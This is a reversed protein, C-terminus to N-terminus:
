YQNGDYSNGESIIGFIGDLTERLGTSKCITTQKLNRNSLHHQVM